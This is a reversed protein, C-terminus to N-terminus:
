KIGLKRLVLLNRKFVFLIINSHPNFKALINIKKKIIKPATVLTAFTEKVMLEYM